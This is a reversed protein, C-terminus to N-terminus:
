IRYERLSLFRLVPTSLLETSGPPRFPPVQIQCRAQLTRLGRESRLGPTSPVFGERGELARGCIRVGSKRATKEKTGGQSGITHGALFSTAISTDPDGALRDMEM